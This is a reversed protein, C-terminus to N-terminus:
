WKEFDDPDSPNMEVTLIHPSPTNGRNLPDYDQILNYVLADFDGNDRNLNSPSGEEKWLESTHRVGKAYEESKLPEEFSTEYLALFPRAHHLEPTFVTPIEEYFSARDSTKSINLDPVTSTDSVTQTLIETFSLASAMWGIKGSCCMWLIAMNSSPM